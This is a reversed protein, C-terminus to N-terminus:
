KTFYGVVLNLALLLSATGLTIVLATTKKLLDDLKKDMKEVKESIHQGFICGEQDLIRPYGNDGETMVSGNGKESDSVDGMWDGAHGDYVFVCRPVPQRATCEM